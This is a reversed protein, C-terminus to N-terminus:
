KKRNKIDSLMRYRARHINFVYRRCQFELASLMKININKDSLGVKETLLYSCDLIIKIKDTETLYEMERDTLNHYEKQLDELSAKRTTELLTCKLLFHPLDETEQGCLLCTAEVNNQNFRSRNEQLIYTGSVLKLKVPLRNIDRSSSTKIYILPHQKGPHYEDVNLYSINRYLKSIDTYYEKWYKNIYSYMLNKWQIKTYPTDLLLYIEPLAYKWIIKKVEIFWSHSDQDKVALQRRAIQKETSEESLLCISYFYSLIKIHIQGEIPIMGSIIYPVVDPANQPLSLIQKLMKKFFMELKDMNLKTPILIELGYLLTPLVYTKMIHICTSPDLGNNGHFGAAMLSYATRRAKKINENITNNLTEKRSKSRQIGLHTAKEVVPLKKDKLRLDICSHRKKRKNEMEIVVSKQPQLKYHENCSFEYAMNLLIQAENPDTTNLTIDDACATACCPIHGIKSGLKSQQLHHLLPDIYIKYLDASLIGGQRVGQSIIFENSTKGNLKIVSSAHKHLNNILNWHRDQIGLHYLNRMLNQHVVVDFASKADLLVIILLKGLDLSERNVEELIFSANLPASNQTFGRQLTCQRPLSTPRIRLKLISEIIKCFVPLVTIGRYNKIELISGKNKFVPSLLGKKLLDPILGKKFIDVLIQHISDILNDGAYIFNEVTLDFSDSAKGKKMSNLAKYIECKTPEKIESNKTLEAIIDIEYKISNENEFNFDEDRSPVALNAFHQRFGEMINDEGTLIEDDVHLDQIYGRLSKRQKNILMHFIKTDKTRTSMIKEKLQSNKMALETRYVRRFNQKNEKKKTLTNHNSPPKGAEYWQLNTIKMEKYATSIEQNWIQLNGMKRKKQKTPQCKRACNDLINSITTISTELEKNNNPSNITQMNMNVLKQDVLNKYEEKDIKDWKIKPKTTSINQNQRKQLNTKCSVVIPYHDSVNSHLTKIITKDSFNRDTGYSYMFYDIESCEQGKPNIYTSGNFCVQLNFDKIFQLLYETRQNKNNKTLDENLDGGILIDHSRTYKQMIEFLQDICEKFEDLDHCGQTPMYISVILLPKSMNDLFEVCQIREGGDDTAKVLHDIEKKWIVAVGGYGRPVQAPHINNYKDVAKGEFNLNTGIENILHIQFQFLWHEQILIIDNKELLKNVAATSTKINKCNFAVVKLTTANDIDPKTPHRGPYQQKKLLLDDRFEFRAPKDYKDTYDDLTGPQLFVIEGCKEEHDKLLYSSILLIYDIRELRELTGDVYKDMLLIFDSFEWNTEVAHMDRTGVILATKEIVESAVPLQHSGQALNLSCFYKTGNLADLAEDIRPLTFADKRTM